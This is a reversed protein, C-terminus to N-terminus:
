GMVRVLENQSGRIETPVVRFRVGPVIGRAHDGRKQPLAAAIARGDAAALVLENKAGDWRSAEGPVIRLALGEPGRLVFPRGFPIRYAFGRTLDPIAIAGVEIVADAGESLVRLQKTFSGGHSSGEREAGERAAAALEPRSALWSRRHLDTVWRPSAKALLGLVADTKWSQAAAYEDTTAGVIQVFRLKGNPGELEGLEPDLAFLIARLDSNPVTASVAGNTDLYDGPLLVSGTQVVYRALQNMRGIPWTPAETEGPARAVRMTLEIGWGSQHPLQSEKGYLESLGFGVYHWHDENAYVSVGDLPDPGGMAWKIVSGWHKAPERGLRQSLHADIADWGATESM